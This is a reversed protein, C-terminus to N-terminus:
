RQSLRPKTRSRRACTKTTSGKASSGEGSWTVSPSKSWPSTAQLGSPESSANTAARWSSRSVESALSRHTHAGSPEPRRRTVAVSRATDAGRKVGSPSARHKTPAAVPGSRRWRTHLFEPSQSTGSAPARGAAEGVLLAEM